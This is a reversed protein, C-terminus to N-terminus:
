NAKARVVYSRLLNNERLWEVVDPTLLELGAGTSTAEFFLRVSQPVDEQFKVQELQKSLDRLENFGEGTQPAKKRYQGFSKFLLTYLELQKLNEPTRAMILKRQEPPAGGFFSSEFFIRWDREQDAALQKGSEELKDLLGTWRKGRTLTAAKPAEAFRTSVNATTDIVDAINPSVTLKVGESRLLLASDVFQTLLIARERLERRLQELEKAESVGERAAEINTIRELSDKAMKLLLM